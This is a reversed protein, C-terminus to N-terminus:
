YEAKDTKAAWLKFPLDAQATNVRATKIKRKGPAAALEKYIFDDDFGAKAAASIDAAWYIAEPRAWYIAGMCMPCPQASVYITCGRLEFSKLKKCAVRIANVEAHATADGDATVTNVAKAIVRGGKVVVAGFPGGGRSVNRAALGVAM